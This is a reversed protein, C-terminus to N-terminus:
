NIEFLKIKILEVNLFNIKAKHYQQEMELEFNYGYDNIFHEVLSGINNNQNVIQPM